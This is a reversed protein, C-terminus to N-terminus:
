INIQPFQKNKKRFSIGIHFLWTGLLLHYIGMFEWLSVGPSTVAGFKCSKLLLEFCKTSVKAIKDEFNSIMKAPNNPHSHLSRVNIVM